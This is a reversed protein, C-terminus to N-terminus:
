KITSDAGGVSGAPPVNRDWRAEGTV